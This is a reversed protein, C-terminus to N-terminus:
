LADRAGLDLGRVIWDDAAQGDLDVVGPLIGSPQRMAEAEHDMITRVIPIGHAKTLAPECVTNLLIGRLSSSRPAFAPDYPAM